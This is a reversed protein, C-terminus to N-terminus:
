QDPTSDPQKGIQVKYAINGTLASGILDEVRDNHEQQASLCIRLLEFELEDVLQEHTLSSGQM